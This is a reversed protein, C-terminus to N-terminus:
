LAVYPAADDYQQEPKVDRAQRNEDAGFQVGLDFVGRGIALRRALLVGLAFEQESAPGFARKAVPLRLWQRWGLGVGGRHVVPFRPGGHSRNEDAANQQTPQPMALSSLAFCM